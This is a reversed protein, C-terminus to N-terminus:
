VIVNTNIREILIRIKVLDGEGERSVSKIHTIRQVVSLVKGAKKAPMNSSEFLGDFAKFLNTLFREVGEGGLSQIRTDMGKVWAKVSILDQRKIAESSKDM